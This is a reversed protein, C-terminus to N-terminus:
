CGGPEGTNELGGRGNYQYTTTLKLGDADLIASKLQGDPQYTNEVALGAGDEHRKVQGNVNYDLTETRDYSAAHFGSSVKPRIITRPNGNWGDRVGNQYKYATKIRRANTHESIQSFCDEYEWNWQLVGSKSGTLKREKLNGAALNDSFTIGPSPDFREPECLCAKNKEEFSYVSVVGEENEVRTIQSFANYGFKRTFPPTGRTVPIVTDPDLETILSRSGILRGTPDLEYKIQVQRPTTLTKAAFDFNWTGDGLKQSQLIYQPLPSSAFTNKLLESGLPSTVTELQEGAYGYKTTVSKPKGKENEIPFTVSVCQGQDNYAFSYLDLAPNTVSVIRDAGGHQEYGLKHVKADDTQRIRDPSFPHTGNDYEFQLINRHRDRMWVIRGFCDYRYRTGDKFHQLYYADCEEAPAGPSPTTTETLGAV